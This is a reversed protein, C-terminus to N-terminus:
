DFALSRPLRVKPIPNSLPPSALGIPSVTLTQHLYPAFYGRSLIKKFIKFFLNVTKVVNQSASQVVDTDAMPNVKKRTNSQKSFKLAIAKPGQRWAGIM